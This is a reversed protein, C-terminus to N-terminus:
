LIKMFGMCGDVCHNEIIIENIIILVVMMTKNVANQMKSCQALELEKEQWRKREKQWGTLLLYKPRM